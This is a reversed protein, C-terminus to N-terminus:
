GRTDRERSASAADTVVRWRSVGRASIRYASKLAVTVDREDPQQVENTVRQQQNVDGPQDRDTQRREDIADFLL